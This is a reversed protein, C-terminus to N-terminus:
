IPKSGPELNHACDVHINGKHFPVRPSSQVLRPWKSGLYSTTDRGIVGSGIRNVCSVALSTRSSRKSIEVRCKRLRRQSPGAGGFPSLLPSPSGGSSRGLRTRPGFAVPMDTISRVTSPILLTGDRRCGFWTQRSTTLATRSLARRHPIRANEIGVDDHSWM